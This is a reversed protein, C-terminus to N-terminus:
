LARVGDSRSEVALSQPLLPRSPTPPQVQKSSSWGRGAPGRQREGCARTRVAACAASGRQWAATAVASVGSLAFCHTPDARPCSALADHSSPASALAPRCCVQVCRHLLPRRHQLPRSAGAVCRRLSCLMREAGRACVPTRPGNGAMGACRRRLVTARTVGHPSCEGRDQAVRQQPM